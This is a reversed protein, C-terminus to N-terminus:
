VFCIGSIETFTIQAMRNLKSMWFLEAWLNFLSYTLGCCQQISQQQCKGGLITSISNERHNLFKFIRVKLLCHWLYIDLLKPVCDLGLQFYWVHVVFLVWMATVYSLKCYLLLFDCTWVHIVFASLPLTNMMCNEHPLKLSDRLLVVM